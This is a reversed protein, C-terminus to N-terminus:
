KCRVDFADKNRFNYVEVKGSIGNETRTLKAMFSRGDRQQDKGEYVTVQDNHDMTVGLYEGLVHKKGEMDSVTLQASLGGFQDQRHGESLQFERNLPELKM